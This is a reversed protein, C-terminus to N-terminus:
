LLDFLSKLPKTIPELAVAQFTPNGRTGTVHFKLLHREVGGLITRKVVSLFPLTKKGPRLAAYVTLDLKNDGDLGITGKATVEVDSSKFHAKSLQLTKGELTFEAEGTHVYDEGTPMRLQLIQYLGAILPMKVIRGDKLEMRGMVVTTDPVGLVGGFDMKGSLNGVLPKGDPSMQKRVTDLDVGKFHVRGSYRPGGNEHLAVRFSGNYVNGFAAQGSFAPCRVTDEDAFIEAQIGSIKLGEVEMDMDNSQIYSIVSFPVKRRQDVLVRGRLTILGHPRLTRWTHAGVEPIAKVIEESLYLSNSELNVLGRDRAVDYYGSVAVSSQNRVTQTGKAVPSATLGSLQILGNDVVVTGNVYNFQMGIKRVDASVNRTNIIIRYGVEDPRDPRPRLFVTAGTWGTPGCQQWILKGALPIMTFLEQNLRTSPLDIKVYYDVPTRSMDVYGTIHAGALKGRWIWADFSWQELTASTPLLKVSVGEVHRFANDAYLGPAKVDVVLNSLTIGNHFFEDLNARRGTTKGPKILNLLNVEGKEDIVLRVHPERIQISQPCFCGALLRWPKIDCTVEKITVVPDEDPAGRLAIDTLRISRTFQLHADGILLQGDLTSQSANLIINVLRPGSKYARVVLFAAILVLVLLGVIVHRCRLRCKCPKEKGETKRTDTQKPEAQPTEDASM